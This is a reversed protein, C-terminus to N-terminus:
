EREYILSQLIKWQDKVVKNRLFSLKIVKCCSSFCVNESRVPRVDSYINLKIIRIESVTGHSVTLTISLAQSGKLHLASFFPWRLSM